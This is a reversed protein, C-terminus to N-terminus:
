PLKNVQVSFFAVAPQFCNATCSAVGNFETATVAFTYTGPTLAQGLATVNAVGATKGGIISNVGHLNVMLDLVKAGV